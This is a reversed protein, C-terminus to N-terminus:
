LQFLDGPWRPVLVHATTLRLAQCATGAHSELPVCDGLMCPDKCVCLVLTGSDM